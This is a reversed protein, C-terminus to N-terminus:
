LARGRLVSMKPTAGLLRGFYLSAACSLLICALTILLASAGIAGMHALNLGAGTLVLLLPM